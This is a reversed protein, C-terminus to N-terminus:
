RRRALLLRRAEAFADRLYRADSNTYAHLTVSVIESRARVSAAEEADPKFVEGFNMVPVEEIFESDTAGDSEYGEYLWDHLLEDLLDLTHLTLAGVEGYWENEHPMQRMVLLSVCSGRIRIEVEENGRPADLLCTITVPELTDRRLM